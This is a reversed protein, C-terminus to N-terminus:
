SCHNLAQEDIGFFRDLHGAGHVNGLRGCLEIRVDRQLSDLDLRTIRDEHLAFGQPCSTPFSKHAIAEGGHSACSADLTEPCANAASEVQGIQEFDAKGLITM